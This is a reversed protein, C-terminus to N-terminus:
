SLRVLSTGINAFLATDRASPPLYQDAVILRNAQLFVDFADVPHPGKYALAHDVVTLVYELFGVVQPVIETNLGETTERVL